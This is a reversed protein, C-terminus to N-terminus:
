CSYDNKQEGHKKAQPCMFWLKRGHVCLTILCDAAEQFDTHWRTFYNGEVVLLYGPALHSINRESPIKTTIIDAWEKNELSRPVLDM